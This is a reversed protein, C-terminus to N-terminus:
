LAELSCASALMEVQDPGAVSFPVTGPGLVVTNVGLAEWEGLQAGIEDVTGVLRGRRWEELDAGMVPALERLHRFRRKLDPADEGVLAHLGLSRTVTAPDRGARECAAELVTLRGRYAEPTQLWGASWGDGHRAVVDLLEDSSGDVWIPPHPRQVPRPLCRADTVTVHTGAFSFPGGGFLGVLVQCAEALQAAGDERRAGLGVVVRGGSVVDITALAKALVAPPRLAADLVFTGLGVRNTIRALAGLAVLPDFGHDALWLSEFGLDEALRACEQAEQWRMPGAGASREPVSGANREPVALEYQPLALGVRM